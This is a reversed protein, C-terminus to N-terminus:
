QGGLKTLLGCARCREDGNAHLRKPGEHACDRPLTAAVDGDDDYAIPDLKVWPRGALDCTWDFLMAVETFDGEWGYVEAVTKLKALFGDDIAARAIDHAEERTM